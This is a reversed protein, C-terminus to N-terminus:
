DAQKFVFMDFIFYNAVMITLVTAFNAGQTHKFIFNWGKFVWQNIYWIVLKAPIFRAVKLVNDIVTTDPDAWTWIANFIFQLTYTLITQVMYAKSVPVHLKKEFFFLLIASLVYLSGGILAFKFVKSQIMVQLVEHLESLTILCM